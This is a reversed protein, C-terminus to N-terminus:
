KNLRNERNIILSFRSVKVRVGPFSLDNEQM